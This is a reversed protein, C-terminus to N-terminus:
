YKDYISQYNGYKEKIKDFFNNFSLSRMAIEYLENITKHYFHNCEVPKTPNLYYNTLITDLKDLYSLKYINWLSVNDYKEYEKHNIKKRYTFVISEDDTKRMLCEFDNTIRLVDEAVNHCVDFINKPYYVTNTVLQNM